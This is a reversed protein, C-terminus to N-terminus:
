YVSDVITSKVKFPHHATNSKLQNQQQSKLVDCEIKREKM